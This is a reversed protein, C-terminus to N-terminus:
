AYRRPEEVPVGALPDDQIRRQIEKIITKARRWNDKRSVPVYSYVARSYYTGRVWILKYCPRYGRGARIYFAVIHYGRDRPRQPGDYNNTNHKENLQRLLELMQNEVPLRLDERIACIDVVELRSRVDIYGAEDKARTLWYADNM